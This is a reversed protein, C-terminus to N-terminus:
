CKCKYYCNRELNGNNDWEWYCCTKLTCSVAQGKTNDSCHTPKAKESESIELGKANAVGIMSVTAIGSIAILYIANKIFGKGTARKM